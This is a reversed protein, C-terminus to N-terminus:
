RGAPPLAAKEYVPYIHAANRVWETEFAAVHRIEPPAHPTTPVRARSAFASTSCRARGNGHFGRRM